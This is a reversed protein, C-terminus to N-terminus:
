RRSRDVHHRRQHLQGAGLGIWAELAEAEARAVFAAADAPSPQETVGTAALPNVLALATALSVATLRCQHSM